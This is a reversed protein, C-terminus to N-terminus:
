KGAGKSKTGSSRKKVIRPEGVFANRHLVQLHTVTGNEGQSFTREGILFVGDIGEQPIVIRVQTNIAWLGNAHGSRPVTLNIAHAKALRRNRELTARNECSGINNGHKDAVIHLPRFFNFESDKVSGKIADGAAYDFSKVVYDSYRLDYNDAIEYQTFDQGYTLVAVAAAESPATLILGGDPQPYLLLNAARAANLLTNAPVECQMAFHPVVATQAAIKVPVNFTTCIRNILAELTLGNLSVSYQCDVLERALSRADIEISHATASVTRRIKGIRITSALSGDVWVQVITNATLALPTDSTPPLAIGLTISACLDDVSERLSVHRWASYKQGDFKIEVM